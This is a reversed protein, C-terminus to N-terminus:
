QQVVLHDVIRRDDAYARTLQLAMERQMESKVTGNLTVSQDDVAAKINSGAYAANKSDFGKRLKEAVEKTSTPHHTSKTNTNSTTEDPLQPRPLQMGPQQGLVPRSMLCAFAFAFIWLTWPRMYSKSSQLVSNLM